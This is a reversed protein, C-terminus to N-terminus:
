VHARGIKAICGELIFIGLVLALVPKGLQGPILSNIMPLLPWCIFFFTMGILVTLTYLVAVVRRRQTPEAGGAFRYLTDELGMGVLISGIIAITTAMELRGFDEPSLQGAIWPLMLLSIGKMLAISAGYLLGHRILSSLKM